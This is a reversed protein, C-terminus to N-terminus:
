PVCNVKEAAAYHRRFVLRVCVLLLRLTYTIADQKECLCVCLPVGYPVCSASGVSVCNIRICKQLRRRRRVNTANGEGDEKTRSFCALSRHIARFVHFNVKLFNYAIFLLAYFRLNPYIYYRYFAKHSPTSLPRRGYLLYLYERIHSLIVHVQIFQLYLTCVLMDCM